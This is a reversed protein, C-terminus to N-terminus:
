FTTSLRVYHNYSLNSLDMGVDYSFYAYWVSGSLGFSSSWYDDSLGYTSNYNSSNIGLEGAFACWEEKSPVFWGNNNQTQIQGWIDKYPGANQSGYASSTWRSIMNKTSIYGMGFIESTLSSYDSIYDDVSYYWCYSTGNVKSDIDNLAMVYFRDRKTTDNQNVRALVPYTGFNGTYSQQTIKYDKLNSVSITPIAYTGDDDYWQGSETNGKALDAYIVGDVVMDGDVDAYYGVFSETVTQTLEEDNAEQNKEQNQEILNEAVTKGSKSIVILLAVIIAVIIVFILIGKKANRTM